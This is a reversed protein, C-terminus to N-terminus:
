ASDITANEDESDNDNDDDNNYIFEELQEFTVNCCTNSHPVALAKDKIQKRITKSLNISYYLILVKLNKLAYLIFLDKDTYEERNNSCPYSLSLEELSHITSIATFSPFCISELNLIKLNKYDALSILLNDLNERTISIKNFSLTKLYVFQKLINVHAFTLYVEYENETCDAEAPYQIMMLEDYNINKASIELERLTEKLSLLYNFGDINLKSKIPSFRHSKLANITSIKSLYYLLENTILTYQLHIYQLQPLYPVSSLIRLDNPVIDFWELYKLNFLCQISNLQQIRSRKCTYNDQRIILKELKTLHKFYKNIDFEIKTSSTVLIFFYTLNPLLHLSSLVVLCSTTPDSLERNLNLKRYPQMALILKQLTQSISNFLNMIFLPSLSIFCLKLCNLSTFHFQFNISKSISLGCEYKGIEIKNIHRLVKSNSVTILQNENLLTLKTNKNYCFKNTSLINYWTKCTLSASILSHIPLYQFILQYCISPITSPEFLVSSNDSLQKNFKNAEVQTDDFRRKKTEM